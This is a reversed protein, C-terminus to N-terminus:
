LTGSIINNSYLEQVLERQNVFDYLTSRRIRYMGTWGQRLTEIYNRTASNRDTQAINLDTVDVKGLLYRQRTIYYRRQGVLEAKQAINIQKFQLLYQAAQLRVQQELETQEKLITANVVDRQARAMELAGKTRGWNLIPVQLTFRFQQQDQPTGYVNSLNVGQGNLGFQGYVMGQLGNDGQARAIDREAEIIRRQQSIGQSSNDKAKQWVANPNLVLSDPKSPVTLQLSDNASYALYAKLRAVNSAYEITLTQVSLGANLNNLELQLLDNEAIKGMNYRGMGQKYLTDSNALDLEANELRSQSSLVDFYINTTQIHIDELDEALTRDAERFVIPEIKRQWRINSFTFLPQSIGISLPTSVYSTFPSTGFIDIRQLGSILSITGGTLGINQNLSLQVNSNALSRYVFSDRGDPKTIRSYARNLDPLTTNAILSPLYDAKYYRYRWLSGKYKTIALLGDTSFNESRTIADNLSLIFINGQAFAYSYHTSLALVLIYKIWIHM